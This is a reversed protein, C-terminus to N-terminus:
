FNFTVNFRLFRAQQITTPRLWLAGDTGFNPNFATGTNSNFVNYLDIGVDSKTGWFRLVKAFRMDLTRLQEQYLEGNSILNVNYNGGALGGSPLRGLSAQVSPTGPACPPAPAECSNRLPYNAALSTGNSAPSADGGTFFGTATTQFRVIASVLVDVKPITYTALGRVTTIWPESVDCSNAPQITTGFLTIALVAEPVQEAVECTNRVGRGTNTGGQLTLGNRLRATGTVDFGHWYQEWNGYDSAFTYFNQPPRAFAASNVNFYEVPYGGGGPLEPHTPATITFFDYDSAATALNDTVFFNGYWRRNYSFEVSIRPAVEQQVSLGLHWDYPRKNWGSSLVDPNVTLPNNLDGFNLNASQGCTDLAPNFAPNPVGGITPLNQGTQNSLDCDVLFNGNADNWSRNTSSQFRPGGRGNRGDLAPNNITYQTQNVAAQLYKGINGKVATKGDGFVDWAAGWRTTIDNWGQVGKTEAFTIPAANFRSPDPAGNHESPFWSWARDYRVAGQVTVRNITWQDQAFFAHSQTRSSTQWPAIRYAVSVTGNPNLATRATDNITYVLQTDNAFDHTEEIYYNGQYGFKMNHAGTVYSANARWNHPNQKNDFFNDLGRYTFNATPVLTGSSRGDPCPAIATCARASQQILPTLDTRSGPTEMWGWRSLYSSYGAELLLRSTHPRTWTAQLIRQRANDVYNTTSEPSANATGNAVWDSGAPRCSDADTMLASGTCVYQQDIYFGLKDKQSAQGTLRLSYIAQATATRARISQNPSYVFSDTGANGNAFVGPVEVHQGYNRVNGFFWLRDRKIPGGFAGNVDWAKVLDAPETIGFSELEADLNEGQSWSGATSFFASGSFDNGGTRPIINVNASSVEAEGLGGSLTVQIEAANPTDYAFGSVGGGNFASGVNIGDLQVRGENPRGGYTNFFTMAPTIQSDQYGGQLAPVANLLAGYGRAAPLAQIVDNDLVAQRRTSQTDVVPTEGTVTVTEQAGVSLRVDITVVGVGSVAVDARRTTSFGTLTFTLQYTGPRLDIIRYQGTSDTVTTRVKEILAPSSAEVTVGPLVGGSTDHVTGSLTTQAHALAPLLVLCALM